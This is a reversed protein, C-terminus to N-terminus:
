VPLLRLWHSRSLSRTVTRTPARRRGAAAGRGPSRGPGAPRGRRRGWDRAPSPPGLGPEPPWHSRRRGRIRFQACIGTSGCWPIMCMSAIYIMTVTAITDCQHTFTPRSSSFSSLKPRSPRHCRHGHHVKSASCSVTGRLGSFRRSSATAVFVCRTLGNEVAQSLAVFARSPCVLTITTHLMITCQSDTQSLAALLARLRPEVHLRLVNCM